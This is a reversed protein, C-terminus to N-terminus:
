ALPQRRRPVAAGAVGADVGYPYPVQFKSNPVAFNIGSRGALGAVYEIASLKVQDGIQGSVALRNMEMAAVNM